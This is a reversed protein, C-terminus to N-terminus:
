KGRTLKKLMEDVKDDLRKEVNKKYLAFASDVEIKFVSIWNGIVIKNIYEDYSEKKFIKITRDSYIVFAYYYNKDETGQIKSYTTYYRQEREIDIGYNLLREKLQNYIDREKNYLDCCIQTQENLSKITNIKLNNAKETENREKLINPIEEYILHILKTWNGPIYEIQNKIINYHLVRKENIYIDLSSDNEIIKLEEYIYESRIYEDTYYGDKYIDTGVKELIYRAMECIGLYYSINGKNVM